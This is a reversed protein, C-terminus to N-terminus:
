SSPMLFHPAPRPRPGGEPGVPRQGLRQAVRGEAGDQAPRGLLEGGAPEGAVNTVEKKKKRRRRSVRPLSFVSVRASLWSGPCGVVHPLGVTSRFRFGLQKRVM